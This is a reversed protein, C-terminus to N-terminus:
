PKLLLAWLLLTVERNWDGAIASLLAFVMLLLVLLWRWTDGGRKSLMFEAYRESAPPNM